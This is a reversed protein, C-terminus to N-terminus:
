MFGVRCFKKHVFTPKEGEVSRQVNWAAFCPVGTFNRSIFSQIPTPFVGYIGAIEKAMLTHLFDDMLKDADDDTNLNVSAEKGFNIIEVDIGHRDKIEMMQSDAIQHRSFWIIKEM